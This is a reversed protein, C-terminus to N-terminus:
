GGMTPVRGRDGQNDGTFTAAVQAKTPRPTARHLPAGPIRQLMRARRQARPSPRGTTPPAGLLTQTGCPGPTMGMAPRSSPSISPSLSFSPPITKGILLHKRSGGRPSESFLSVYMYLQNRQSSLSLSCLYTLEHVGKSRTHERLCGTM